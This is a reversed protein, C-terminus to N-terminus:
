EYYTIVRKETQEKNESTVKENGDDGNYETTKINMKVKRETWNGHDDFATYDYDITATEEYEEDAVSSTEQIPLDQENLKVLEYTLMAYCEGSDYWRKNTIGQENYEYHFGEEGSCANPNTGGIWLLRGDNDRRVISGGVVTGGPMKEYSIQLIKPEIDVGPYEMKVEMLRGQEDFTMTQDNQTMTKVKGQLFFTSLDTSHFEESGDNNSTAKNSCATFAILVVVAGMMAFFNSIHKM